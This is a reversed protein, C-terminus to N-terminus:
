RDRQVADGIEAGAKEPVGARGEDLIRQPDQASHLEGGAEIERQGRLGGRQAREM